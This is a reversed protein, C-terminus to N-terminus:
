LVEMKVLESRLDALSNFLIPTYGCDAASSLSSESDDIFILESLPVDLDKGFLEYAEASPKMYGTEGSIHFVDFYKDISNARMSAAAERTNNSLLGTKIGKKRITEILALLGDNVPQGFTGKSLKMIEPVKNVDQGLENLVEAWFLEWTVNDVNIKKSHKSYANQYDAVSVNLLDCIASRFVSNPKGKIVGGYDFGIAKYKM